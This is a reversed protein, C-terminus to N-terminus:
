RRVVWVGKGVAVLERDRRPVPQVQDVAAVPALAQRPPPQVLALVVRLSRDSLEALSRDLHQLAAERAAAPNGAAALAGILPELYEGGEAFYQLPVPFVDALAAICHLCTRTLAGTRLRHIYTDSIRRESLQEVWRYSFQLGLMDRQLAFLWDLKQALTKSV